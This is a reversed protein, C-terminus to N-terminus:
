CPDHEFFATEGVKIARPRKSKRLARYSCFYRFPPRGFSCSGGRAVHLVAQVAGELKECDYRVDSSSYGAFQGPATVVDVLSEEDEAARNFITLAVGGPEDSRPSAEGFVTKAAAQLERASYPGVGGPILASVRCAGAPTPLTRRPEAYREVTAGVGPIEPSFGAAQARLRAFTESDQASAGLSLFLALALGPNAM